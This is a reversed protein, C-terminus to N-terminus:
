VERRLAEEVELRVEREELRVVKRVQLRAQACDVDRRSAVASQRIKDIDSVISNLATDSGISIETGPVDNNITMPMCAIPIDLANHERRHRHLEHAAHYGDWGGAMLLGDIRHAAIQEAIQAIDTGTPVVTWRASRLGSTM